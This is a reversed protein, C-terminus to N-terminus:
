GGPFLQSPRSLAVWVGAVLRARLENWTQKFSFLFNCSRRWMRSETFTRSYTLLSISFYHWFLQLAAPPHNQVPLWLSLSLSLSVSVIFSQVQLLHHRFIRSQVRLWYISGSNWYRACLTIIGARPSSVNSFSAFLASVNL